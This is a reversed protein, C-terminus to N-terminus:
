LINSIRLYKLITVFVYNIRVTLKFKTTLVRINDIILGCCKNVSNLELNREPINSIKNWNNFQENREFYIKQDICMKKLYSNLSFTRSVISYVDISFNLISIESFKIRFASAFSKKYLWIDYYDVIISYVFYICQLLLLKRLMAGNHEYKLIDDIIKLNKYKLIESRHDVYTEMVIAILIIFSEFMISLIFNILDNQINYHIIEYISLFGFSTLIIAAYIKMWKENIYSNVENFGFLLYIKRMIKLCIKYKENM